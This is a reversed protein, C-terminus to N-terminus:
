APRGAWVVPDGILPSGGWRGATWVPLKGARLQRFADTLLPHQLMEADGGLTLPTERTLIWASAFAALGLIGVLSRWLRRADGRAATSDGPTM